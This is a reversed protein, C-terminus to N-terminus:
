RELVPDDDRFKSKRRWSIFFAAYPVLGERTGKWGPVPLFLSLHPTQPPGKM